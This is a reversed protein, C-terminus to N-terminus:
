LIPIIITLITGKDAASLISISGKWKSVRIKMNKIGNRASPVAPDFGKGNDKIIMQFYNQDTQLKIDVSTAGSHKYINNVAEKFVLYIDKRKEMYLKKNAIREDFHIHYAINAGEFLEATYRRMRAVIQEYSDNMTNISWVIDDLSQNSTNVEETIRRLFQRAQEPKELNANSLETLININSLTSGIDDHLDTAISNRIAQVRLLQRIRNLYISYIVSGTIIIALVVFWWSKYYPTQVSFLLIAENISMTGDSLQAKVRFSYNGSLLNSFSIQRTRGASIWNKSLESLRYYYRNQMGDVLNVASFAININNDNAPLSISEAPSLSNGSSTVSTILVSPAPRPRLLEAPTISYFLHSTNFYIKDAPADYKVCLVPDESSQYYGNFVFFHGSSLEMCSLGNKTGIWIRGRNDAALSYITNSSLGEPMDVKEIRQSHIDFKLLGSNTGLWIKGKHDAYIANIIGNDFNTNYAPLFLTFRNDARRWKVLGRGETGGMWLDGFEDENITVPFRIPLNNKRDTKSYFQLSHDALNYAALGKGQGLGMWLLNEKDTFQTVIPYDSIWQQNKPWKVLRPRVMKKEWEYMGKQTGIWFKNGDAARVNWTNNEDVNKGWSIEKWPATLKNTYFVGGSTTTLFIKGNVVFTGSLDIGRHDEANYAPLESTSIANGILTFKYLGNDTGVWLNSERDYLMCTVHHKPLLIGSTFNGQQIDSAERNWYAMGGDSLTCTALWNNVLNIHTNFYIQGKGPLHGFAAASIQGSMSNLFYVSDVLHKVFWSNGKKDFAIDRIESNDIMSLRSGNLQNLPFIHKKAPTYIYYQLKKNKRLRFLVKGDPLPNISEVYLFWTLSLDRENLGRNVQLINLNQDLKYLATQSAAWVDNQKDITVISFNNEFPFMKASGPILLSKFTNARTNFLCLGTSTAVLLRQGPLKQISKIYNGPLSPSTKSHYFNKFEVGDYRSLGYNTGIWLFGDEDQCIANITADPLGDKVSIYAPRIKDLNQSRAPVFVSNLLLLLILQRYM